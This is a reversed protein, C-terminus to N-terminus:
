FDSINYKKNKGGVSKFDDDITVNIYSNITVIQATTGSVNIEFVRWTNGNGSFAPADITKIVGTYDYISVKAPSDAIGQGGTSTSNSYNLVSYRYMGASFSKITVTEPGYSETDDTDLFVASEYAKNGYYVHFRESSNTPGTIHTDLDSPSVGWTLVIRLEGEELKEVATFDDMDNSGSSFEVGEIVMPFFGVAEIVCTFVGIPSDDITYYGYEDTEVILDADDSSTASEDFSFSVTANALGNGTQSNIIQGIVDAEGYLTYDEDIAGTLSVSNDSETYGTANIEITYDGEEVEDFVYNGDSDTTTTYTATTEDVPILSVTCSKVGVETTNRIKGGYRYKEILEECSNLLMVVGFVLLVGKLQKVKKM